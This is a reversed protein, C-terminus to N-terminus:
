CGDPAPYACPFRTRALAAFSATIDVPRDTPAHHQQPAPCSTPTCPMIQYPCPTGHGYPHPTCELPIDHENVYLRDLEWQAPNNRIYERILNLESENRIIREWYNRQWLTAGPTQQLENVRKTVASKFSRVITPLSGSVPRGFQEVTPTRHATGRRHTTPYPTNHPM